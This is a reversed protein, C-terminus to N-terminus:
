RARGKDRILDRLDKEYRSAVTAPIIAGPAALELRIVNQPLAQANGAAVTPLAAGRSNSSPAAAAELGREMRSADAPAGSGSGTRSEQARQEKQINDLKKAHIRGELAIAQQLDGIARANGAKRAAEIQTQLQLRKQAYAFQEQQRANGTLQVFEAQLTKLTSQASDQLAQMKQRAAELAQQLGQLRNADLRDFNQGAAHIAAALGVGSQTATQLDTTVRNVADLQQQAMQTWENAMRFYYALNGGGTRLITEMAKAGAEGWQLLAVTALDWMETVQEGDRIETSAAAHRAAAQQQAAAANDRMQAAVAANHQAHERAVANWAVAASQTRSLAQAARDASPAIKDQADALEQYAQRLTAFAPTGAQAGRSLEDLRSKILDLDERTKAKGILDKLGDVIAAGARAGEQGTTKLTQQLTALEDVGQRVSAGVGTMAREGDIGARDFAERVAGDLVGAWRKAEDSTEGTAIKVADLKQRAADVIGALDKDSVSKSYDDWKQKADKAGDTLGEIATAFADLQTNDFKAATPTAAAAKLRDLQTGAYAAAQAYAEAQEKAMEMGDLNGLQRDQLEVARWYKAASEMTEAYAAGQERTMEKLAGAGAIAADAYRKNADLTEVIKHKLDAHAQQSDKLAEAVGQQRQRYDDIAAKNEDWAFKISMIAAILPGFANSLASVGAMAKQALTTKEATAVVADGLAQQALKLKETAASAANEAKSLATQAAAAHKTSFAGADKAKALALAREAEAVIQQSLGARIAAEREAERLSSLQAARALKLANAQEISASAAAKVSAAYALMGQALRGAYLGALGEALHTLTGVHNIITGVAGATAKGMSVIANAIREARDQLEGSAALRAFAANAETLRAKFYDLAGSSAVTNLFNTWNDKLNSVLGNWSKMQAELAGDSSRGMEDILLRIEKRGIAGSASLAMVEASTKGMAGALMDWVPIGRELLQNADEAQLKQKTWAQGLALVVGELEVQGGGTKATQAAVNRLTGDMPDLGFAKMRIFAKTVGELEFPTDKAFQQIWAFAAKGAAVGGMLSELSAGFKEFQGGTNLVALLGDKLKEAGEIAIRFSLYTKVSQWVKEATSSISQINQRASGVAAATTDQAAIILKLMLDSGFAM